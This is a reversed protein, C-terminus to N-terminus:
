LTHVKIIIGTQTASTVVVQQGCFECCLGLWTLDTECFTNDTRNREHCVAEDFTNGTCIAHTTM